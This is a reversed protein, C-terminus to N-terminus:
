LNLISYTGECGYSMYMYKFVQTWVRVVKESLLLAKPDQMQFKLTKFCKQLLAINSSYKTISGVFKKQGKPKLMVKDFPKGASM